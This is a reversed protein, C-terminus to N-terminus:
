TMFIAHKQLSAWFKQLKPFESGPVPQGSFESFTFINSIYRANEEFGELAAPKAAVFEFPTIDANCPTGFDACFALLAEWLYRVLANGDRAGQGRAFPDAFRRFRELLPGEGKPKKRKKKKPLKIKEKAMKKRWSGYSQSLGTLLSVVAIYLVVLGCVILLVFFLKVIMDFIRGFTETAASSGKLVNRYEPEIGTNRHIDSLYPDKLQDVNDYRKDLIDSVKERDLPGSKMDAARGAGPKGGTGLKEKMGYRSSWGKYNSVIRDRVYMGPLSPPQPLFFSGILVVTVVFFGISLWPVGVDEPLPVDRKEFYSALQSLSSLFLLAFACWLYLFIYFGMRLHVKPDATNFLYIGAGFAPVALISFYLIMRGPHHRPLPQVWQRELEEKTPKEKEMEKRIRIRAFIGIDMATMQKVPDDIWCSATIKYVVFWLILVIVENVLFVVLPHTPIRYAHAMYAAFLTIAIGLAVAYGRATDKGLMRSIRQILIIGVAFALLAQRLRWEGGAIFLSRIEILYLLLSSVLGWLCLPLLFSLLFKSFGVDRQM